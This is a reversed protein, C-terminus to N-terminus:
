ERFLKQKEKSKQLSFVSKDHSSLYKKKQLNHLM